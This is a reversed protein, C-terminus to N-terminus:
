PKCVCCIGGLDQVQCQGTDSSAFCPSASEALVRSSGSCFTNCIGVGVHCMAFSTVAPGAPGAPGEPGRPGQDGTAGKQGPLGPAGMDGKPGAPGQPGVLSSRDGVWQGTDNIVPHGKVAISGGVDLPAQPNLRGIGVRGADDILVRATGQTVFIIPMGQEDASLTLSRVHYRDGAEAVAAIRGTAQTSEPRDGPTTAGVIPTTTAKLQLEADSRSDGGPLFFVRSEILAEDGVHLPAQPSSNGIGVNGTVPDVYIAQGWADGTTLFFVVGAFLLLLKVLYGM